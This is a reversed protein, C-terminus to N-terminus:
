NGHDGKGYKSFVTGCKSCTKGDLKIAGGCSTCRMAWVVLFIISISSFAGLAAALPEWGDPVARISIVSCCLLLCLPGNFRDLVSWRRCFEKSDLQGTM